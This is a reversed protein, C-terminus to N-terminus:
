LATSMTTATSCFFACTPTTPPSPISISGLTPWYLPLEQWSLKRTARCATLVVVVVLVVLVVVLLLVLLVVAVLAAVLVMVLIAGLLCRLPISPNNLTAGVPM